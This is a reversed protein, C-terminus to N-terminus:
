VFAQDNYKEVLMQKQGSLKSVNSQYSLTFGEVVGVIAM